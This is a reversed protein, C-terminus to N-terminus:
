LQGKEGLVKVILTNRWPKALENLEEDSVTITPGQTLTKIPVTENSKNRKCSNDEVTATGLIDSWCADHPVTENTAQLLADKFSPVNKPGPAESMEEEHHKKEEEQIKHKKNSRQLLDAEEATAVTARPPNRTATM